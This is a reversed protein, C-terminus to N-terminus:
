LSAISPTCTSHRHGSYYGGPQAQSTSTGPPKPLDLFLPMYGHLPSLATSMVAAEAKKARLLRSFHAKSYVLPCPWQQWLGYLNLAGHHKCYAKDLAYVFNKNRDPTSSKPFTRIWGNNLWWEMFMGMHQIEALAAFWGDTIITLHALYGDREFIFPWSTPSIDLKM